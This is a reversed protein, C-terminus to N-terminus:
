SLISWLNTNDEDIRLKDHRCSELELELGECRACRVVTSDLSAKELLSIRAVKEALKSQLGSCSMCAGLLGSRSKLEDNEDLLAVYKSQLDTLNSIHVVCEDCEVEDFVVVIHKKAEELENLTIELKDKYEKREHAVCKLLKDQSFLTDNKTELKAVLYDVFPTVKTTDDDIPVVDKSAKVKANVAM